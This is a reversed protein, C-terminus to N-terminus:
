VPARLASETIRSGCRSWVTETDGCCCTAGERGEGAANWQDSTSVIAEHLRGGANRWTFRGEVRRRAHVGLRHRLDRCGCLRSIALALDHAGPSDVLWGSENHRMIEASATRITEGNPRFAICPLGCAMAEVLAGGFSEGRSPFAFVDTAWLYDRVNAQLGCFRVRKGLGLAEARCRLGSAEPGDGVIFVRLLRSRCLAVAALLAGVNKEPALRGVYTLVQEERDVGLRARALWREAPFPPRFVAANVGGYAVSWGGKYISYGNRVVTLTSYSDFIVADARAFGRRENRRRLWADLAFTVQARASCDQRAAREAREHLLVSGGCVFVVPRRARRRAYAAVMEPQCSLFVDHNTSLSRVAATASRQKAVAQLSWHVPARRDSRRHAALLKADDNRDSCNARTVVFSVAHGHMRLQEALELARRSLGCGVRRLQPMHWLIRV